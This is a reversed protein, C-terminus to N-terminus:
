AIRPLENRFLWQPGLKMDHSIFLECSKVGGCQPIQYDVIQHIRDTTDAEISALIDFRGTTCALFVIEPLARLRNFVPIIESNTVKIGVAGRRLWETQTNLLLATIRIYGNNILANLRQQVTIRNLKLHQALKVVSMQGDNKLLHILQNDKEDIPKLDNHLGQHLLTFIELNNVGKLKPLEKLRFASFHDITDYYGTAMVNFRGSTMSVRAISDQQVLHNVAAHIDNHKIEFGLIVGVPSASKTPDVFVTIKFINERLLHSLRRSATNKSTGLEQALSTISRRGNAKLLKFLKRDLEDLNTSNRKAM